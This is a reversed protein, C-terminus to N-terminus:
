PMSDAPAKTPPPAAATTPATVGRCSLTVDRDNPYKSRLQTCTDTLDDHYNIARYSDALRLMADRARPTDPWKDLVNKFYIIGSDYAGRTFYFMGAEYDRTAFWQNLEAIKAKATDAEPAQPYLGLVTEYTQMATAGYTPDLSPKRWLHQYARGSELAARPGLSDDPFSEVLRSFSQAALLYEDQQEHSLGLYWYSRPLLSDRAPLETTLKEFAAVANDWHHKQFEAMAAKYLAENSPFSAPNFPPRCAAATLALAALLGRTQRHM